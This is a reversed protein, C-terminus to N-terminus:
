GWFAYKGTWVVYVGLLINSVSHAICAAWIDRTQILLRGYAYGAVIGAIWRQHELGFAVVVLLFMLADHEKLDVSLFNRDILFRYIFGRWFFEEIVAIVLGSGLIRVMTLSWGCVAPAYPTHGAPEAIQWPPLLGILLYLRQVNPWRAAFHSEFAVWVVFVLAGVGISPLLHEVRLPAYWRWPRLTLLLGLTIVVRVGYKAATAEGLAFM